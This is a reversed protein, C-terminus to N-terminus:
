NLTYNLNKKYKIYSVDEFYVQRKQLDIKAVRKNFNVNCGESMKRILDDLGNQPYDFNANYGVSPSEEKAGKLILDKNVSTKYKDQPAIKTFLGATYLEHFPFFFLNCLTKGFNVELWDALTSVSKNGNNLIEKLAKARFDQPLYFLHNQIPYPVYLDLDPFYVASKREYTKVPSLNNIFDLIYNDSGFIWHGGGIEFSYTEENLRAYTKKGELDVYYSACIGGGIDNAEYVHSGINIWASLGTIGTGLILCDKRM